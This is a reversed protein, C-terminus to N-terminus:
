LFNEINDAFDLISGVRVIKKFFTRKRLEELDVNRNYPADILVGVAGESGCGVFNEHYDDIFFDCFVVSKDNVFSVSDYIINNFSLWKLTDLKNKLSNQRTVIHITGYERLKDIASVAGHVPRSEFFLKHGHRDFFWHHTECKCSDSVLPFSVDLNYDKVDEYNLSAGFELNYLEVMSPVLDRLVDDVDVLFRFRGKTKTKQM